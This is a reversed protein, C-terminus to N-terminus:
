ESRLAVMPDVKTARRAPFYCALLAVTALLSAVLAFTVPDTPSVGFLLGAMLRTLAFAAALGAAVGTLTLTMGQRVVLKLVDVPQAGLAMRIGFENVRSGVNLSMVGYIGVIALLLAIAAFGALLLNTLRKTVLSRGVAQEMTTVEYLPLQPDLESVLQRMTPILAAPDGTTRLALYTERSTIQAFPQYLYYRADEDLSRNKVSAVVGVVTLWPNGRSARGIRIRKGIPDEDPWYTRVIKEDVIAVRLSNETDSNLFPRGKLIPIGMTAFYDPTVMRYWTVQVPDDPRPERGEITFEDGDGGGSFPVVQCLGAARVGPLHAARELLREYFNRVPAGRPYKNIPLELRGTLVNEAKFGPDVALLHRFSKLLLGAGILLVLSLAIQAIVFMNNLRQSASTTNRATEKLAEQINVRAARFAPALGCLLGTLLAALLTFLLVRPNLSAQDLRPIDDAALSKIGDIGWAALLLGGGAGLMALLLSEIMLQLILRRSGAGLCCRIAMERRRSLARVLLLNAINACAILLVLGVAGFLVLLSSQVRGVIRDILPMMVVISGSNGSYNDVLKVIESQAEAMVVGPRLRGTVSYNYYNRGQPNLGLPLWLDIHPFDAREAPHPFDFAPPMIGVVAFPENNLQIPKGLVGPDGNFRRQWVEYSLIAVKNNGPTDEHPLFSRGHLPEKGLVQFYDFTVNATSLREPEGGGTLTASGTDYAAMGEFTQAHERCFAFLAQTLNVEMLGKEPASLWFTVLREPERMPLPRLLVAQVVSFIATNAGIGLALTIVALLTFGPRKLLMRVGYRLDQWITNMFIGTQERLEIKLGLSFNVLGYAVRSWAGLNKFPAIQSSGPSCTICQDTRKQSIEKGFGFRYHDSISLPYSLKQSSRYDDPLGM